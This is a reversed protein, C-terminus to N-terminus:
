PRYLLYRATGTGEYELIPTTNLDPTSEGLLAYIRLKWNGGQSSLVALAEKTTEDDEKLGCIYTIYTITEGPFSLRERERYELSTGESHVYSYIKDEVAFYFFTTASQAMLNTFRMQSEDDVPSITNWVVKTSMTSPDYESLEQLLLHSGDTRNKMLITTVADNINVGMCQLDYDMNQLELTDSLNAAEEIPILESVNNTIQNFSRTNLDFVIRDFSGYTGINRDLEYTGPFAAGYKGINPMITSINYMKGDNILYYNSTSSNNISQPRCTPTGYFQDEFTKYLTFDKADYTRIDESTLFHYVSLNGKQTVTGDDNTIAHTYRGSQYLIQIATGPITSGFSTLLDNYREGDLNIYDLDTESGNDKLIYWGSSMPIATINVIMEHRVYIDRESDHIRFNLRYTAADLSVTWELNKEESLDWQRPLSGGAQYEMIDWSYTYRSPDDNVITPTLRFIDGRNITTDNPLGEIQVPLVSEGNVYDYNGEDGICANFLLLSGIFLGIYTILKKM